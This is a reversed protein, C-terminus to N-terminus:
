ICGSKMGLANKRMITNFVSFKHEKNKTSVDFLNNRGYKSLLRVNRIFNISMTTHQATSKEQKIFLISITNSVLVSSPLHFKIGKLKTSNLLKESSKKQNIQSM